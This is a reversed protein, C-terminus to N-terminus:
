VKMLRSNEFYPHLTRLETEEIQVPYGRLLFAKHKGLYACNADREEPKYDNIHPTKNLVCISEKNCTWPYLTVVGNVISEVVWQSNPLPDDELTIYDSKTMFACIHEDALEVSETKAQMIWIDRDEKDLLGLVYASDYMLGKIM